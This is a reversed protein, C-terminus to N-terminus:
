ADIAGEFEPLTKLYEYGQKIFNPANDAIDPIFNFTKSIIQVKGNSYAEQNVYGSLQFTINSKDGSLVEIRMYSNEVTLGSETEIMKLLAM